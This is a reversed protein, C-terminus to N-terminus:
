PGELRSHKWIYRIILKGTEANRDSPKPKYLNLWFLINVWNFFFFSINAVSGWCFWGCCSAGQSGWATDSPRQPTCKNYRTGSDWGTSGQPMTSSIDKETSVPPEWPGTTTQSDLGPAIPISLYIFSPHSVPLPPPTKLAPTHFLTSFFGMTKLSFLDSHRALWFTLM